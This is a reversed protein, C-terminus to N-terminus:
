RCSTLLLQSEWDMLPIRRAQLMFMKEIQDTKLAAAESFPLVIQKRRYRGGIEANKISGPGKSASDAKLSNASQSPAM